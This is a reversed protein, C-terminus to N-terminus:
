KNLERDLARREKQSYSDMSGGLRARIAEERQAGVERLYSTTGFTVSDKTTGSTIGCSTLNLALLAGITVAFFMKGLFMTTTMDEM